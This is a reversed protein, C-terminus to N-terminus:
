GPVRAARDADFVGREEEGFDVGASARALALQDFDPVADNM